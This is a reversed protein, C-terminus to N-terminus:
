EFLVIHPLPVDGFQGSVLTQIMERDARLAPRVDYPQLLEIARGNAGCSCSRGILPINCQDCWFLTTKVPPERM